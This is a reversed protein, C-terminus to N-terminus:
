FWGQPDPQSNPSNPAKWRITRVFMRKQSHWDVAGDVTAINGGESGIQIPDQWVNPGVYRPGTSTHPARTVKPISAYSGGNEISDAMLYTDPTSDTTKQPSNWPKHGAGISTDTPLGWLCFYGIRVGGGVEWWWGPEKSWNPCVMANTPIRVEEAFYYYPTGSSTPGGPIFTAHYTNGMNAYPFKERNDMAYMIAGLSIQKINNKCVTRHAREKAKSLAPLLLAALIAIIAIVVLLEILTFGPNRRASHHNNM